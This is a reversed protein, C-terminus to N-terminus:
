KSVTAYTEQVKTIFKTFMSEAECIEISKTYFYYVTIAM